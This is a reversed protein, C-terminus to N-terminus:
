ILLCSFNNVSKGHHLFFTVGFFPFFVPLLIPAFTKMHLRELAFYTVLYGNLWFNTHRISDILVDRATSTIVCPWEICKCRVPSGPAQLRFSHGSGKFGSDVSSTVSLESLNREVDTIDSIGPVHLHSLYKLPSLFQPKTNDCRSVNHQALSVPSLFLLPSRSNSQTLYPYYCVFLHLSHHHQSFSFQLWFELFFTVPHVNWIFSHSVLCLSTKTVYCFYHVCNHFCALM